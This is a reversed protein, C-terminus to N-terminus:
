NQYQSDLFLLVLVQNPNFNFLKNKIEKTKNREIARNRTYVLLAISKKNM